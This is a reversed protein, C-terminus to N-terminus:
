HAGEEPLEGALAEALRVVFHFAVLGFGIPFMLQFMADDAWPVIPTPHERSIAVLDAGARALVLCVFVALANTLVALWRRASRSLLKSLADVNIHKARQTAMMAGFFSVLIVMQRLVVDIWSLKIADIFAVGKAAFSGEPPPGGLPTGDDAVPKEGAADIMPLNAFPDEDDGLDDAQPEPPTKGDQAKVEPEPAGDDEGWDGGFGEAAPEPTTAEVKTEPKEGEDDEDDGGEGWDGGFGEAAGNKAPPAKEEGTNTPAAATPEKAAVVIPPGSHAWHKQLPVLANRYFVNYGALALMTLVLAVAVVGEVRIVASELARLGKM